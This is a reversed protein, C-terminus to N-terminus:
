WFRGASVSHTRYFGHILSGYSVLADSRPAHIFRGSGVYVGVHNVHRAGIRFFVLDGPLLDKLPVPRAARKQRAATRPISIGARDYAFVALGSCDFGRTDTGGFRYPTGVLAAAVAAITRGREIRLEPVRPTTACGALLGALM